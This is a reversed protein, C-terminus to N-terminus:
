LLIKNRPHKQMLISKQKATAVHTYIQTTLISSHGLFGQIYRIDVDEELLLTAFSHRFMHPTIYLSTDIQNAYKRLMFRVSQESMRKGSRNIFFADKTKESFAKQHQNLISLVAPNGIQIMREKAGKGFIKITGDILDVNSVNLGSLESVRMGTAFLLEMITANRLGCKRQYETKGQKIEDYSATLLQEIIRLPITRPLIFPEQLSIKLKVFPNTVIMEKDELYHCFTKISAVKRKISKPKYCQRMVMIYDMITDREISKGSKILYDSFQELDIRYAKVTKWNLNKQYQCIALYQEITQVNLQM